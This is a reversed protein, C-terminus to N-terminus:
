AIVKHEQLMEKANKFVEDVSIDNMCKFHGAPCRKGGHLACPRCKLDKVEIVRHGKGYPFFGLEKTTPGFIALTPVSYATAIHMPGSDNTIFLKFNPMLSMLDTLSTKGALNATTGKSVRRIREGLESDKAGGVLVCTVSLENQLKSILETFKEEPWCKTAWASGPHIGILTKGELHYEKMLRAINEAPTPVSKLNLEEAQFNEKVIGHLLNLNREADHIMWSFPVTKTYLFWGESSSFGIRIPVKSLWAILASRFSRHPVLLIDIGSQKIEKATKFIGTIKKLGKKENLIIQSVEPMHKFISETEPRTIVVIKADPFMKATKSVLPTTLVSDGIFSTQFIGIKRIKKKDAAGDSTNYCWDGLQPEKYIIPVDWSTLADLYKELTHKELEPSQRRYKVFMRRAVSSKNYKVKNPIGSLATIIISRSNSHLDLLHTFNRSKIEHVTELNTRKLTLIEDIDPHCSLVDAFQKKVLLTIHCNPWKAKLNKYVPSSLVIDGLSSLRIVLIKPSKESNENNM